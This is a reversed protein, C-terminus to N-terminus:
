KEPKQIGSRVAKVVNISEKGYAGVNQIPVAGVSGPILSLNEIGWWGAAVARAVFRDWNEGAAVKLTVSSKNEGVTTIGETAVHIVLGGFGRDSVLINSGGGLLFIPIEQRRAARWAQIIDDPEKAKLYYRAPGGISFTTLHRLPVNEQVNLQNFPM